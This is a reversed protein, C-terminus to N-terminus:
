REIGTRLKMARDEEQSIEEKKKQGIKAFLEEARLPDGHKQQLRALEYYSLQFEPDVKISTELM